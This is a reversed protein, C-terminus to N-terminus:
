GRYAALLLLLTFYGASILWFGGARATGLPRIVEPKPLPIPDWPLGAQMVLGKVFLLHIVPVKRAAMAFLVGRQSVPPLPLSRHLGPKVDLVQLSTGLNAFGGGSNNIYLLRM